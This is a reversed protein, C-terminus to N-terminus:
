IFLRYGVGTETLFFKPQAANDELKQRLNAMYIRLYHASNTHSPGWVSKLIQQHTLVKNTHHLLFSLLRYEIPTLHIEQQAKYILRKELDVLVDGFEFLHNQQANVHLQSRRLAARVRALLEGIGFPKLLYDDAGADLASIKEHEQDRASLVIIPMMSWSRVEIIVSKGDQDPLGLDLILLDAKRTAVEILGRKATDASFVHCGAEELTHTVVRRIQLDDEILVVNATISTQDNM